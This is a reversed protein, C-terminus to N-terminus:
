PVTDELLARLERLARVFRMKAAVESIRLREGVDAFPRDELLRLVLVERSAPTLREMGEKIARAVAPGYESSPDALRALADDGVLAAPPSRLLRRREDAFRRRAITYLVGLVRNPDEVRALARVADEFVQQALDEADHHSRTRRLLFRYVAQYHRRFATEVAAAPRGGETTM